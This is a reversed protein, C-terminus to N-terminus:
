TPPIYLRRYFCSQIILRLKPFSRCFFRCQFIFHTLFMLDTKGLDIILDTKIQYVNKRHFLRRDRFLYRLKAKKFCSIKIRNYPILNQYLLASYRRFHVPIQFLGGTRKGKVIKASLILNDFIQPNKDHSGPHSFFGQIM